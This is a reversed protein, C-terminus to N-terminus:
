GGRGARECEEIRGELFARERRNRALALASRYAAAAEPWRALRRLLDARTAPLLHYGRLAPSSALADLLRLGAEPGEAMGVAVARKLEVVPSPDIAALAAYLAAIARWDTAEWSPALAHCQQCVGRGDPV